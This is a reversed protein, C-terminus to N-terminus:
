KKLRLAFFSILTSLIPIVTIWGIIRLTIESAGIVATLVVLLLLFFLSTYMSIKFIKDLM